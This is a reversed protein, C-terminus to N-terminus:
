WRGPITIKFNRLKLVGNRFGIALPGSAFQNNILNEIMLNNNFFLNFQNNIFSIKITNWRNYINQNALKPINVFSDQDVSSYTHTSLDIRYSTNPNIVDPNLCRLFLSSQSNNTLWYDFELIFNSLNIRSVLLGSGQDAVVLADEFHWNANGKITWASFDPRNFLFFSGGQLNQIVQASAKKGFSFFICLLFPIKLLNVLFIRRNPKSCKM